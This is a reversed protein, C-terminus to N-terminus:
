LDDIDDEARLQDPTVGQRLRELMASGDAAYTATHTGTGTDTVDVRSGRAAQERTLALYFTNADIRIPWYPTDLSLGAPLTDSTTLVVPGKGTVFGHANSTLVDTSANATFTRGTATSDLRDAEGLLFSKLNSAAHRLRSFVRHRVHRPRSEQAM